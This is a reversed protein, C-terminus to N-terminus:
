NIMDDTVTLTYAHTSEDVVDLDWNLSENLDLRLAEIRVGASDRYLISSEDTGIYTDRDTVFYEEATLFGGFDTGIEEIEEIDNPDLQVTEFDM